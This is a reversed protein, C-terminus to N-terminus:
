RGTWVLPSDGGGTLIAPPVPQAWEAPAVPPAWEAPAVPPAWEAPGAWEPSPVLQTAPSRAALVARVADGATPGTFLKAVAPGPGEALAQHLAAALGAPETVWPALGARDLAAANTTGHGPLCRYSVVPVGASMAELSTLGGANQVVVDAAHILAPMETVWGLAIGSGAEAIRARLEENRGCLTVATALGSATIEAATHAVDGVGWSGAVVLAIPGEAPLGHRVRVAVREAPQAPQAFSPDVAPRIVQVRTAGLARAQEAAVDHLALHLDIAPAVWIPHVSMDTLFTFTPAALEGRRRLLGLVQSALPHTSVVAVPDPSLVARMRRLGARASFGGVGANVRGHRTLCGLLWGWSGPAVKLQNEYTRRVTRGLPGWVLDLFDHCTVTYGAASFERVLERAAGDHGAGFSASIV